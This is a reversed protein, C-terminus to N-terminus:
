SVDSLEPKFNDKHTCYLGDTNERRGICAYSGGLLM